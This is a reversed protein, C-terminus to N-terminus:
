WKIWIQQDGFFINYNDTFPFYILIFTDTPFFKFPKVNASLFGIVMGELLYHNTGNMPFFIFAICVLDCKMGIIHFTM